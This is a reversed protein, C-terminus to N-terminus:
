SPNKRAFGVIVRDPAKPKMFVVRATVQSYHAVVFTKDGADNNGTFLFTHPEIFEVHSMYVGCAEILVDCEKPAVKLLADVAENLAVFLADGSLYRRTLEGQRQAEELALEEYGSGQITAIHIPRSMFANIRSLINKAM